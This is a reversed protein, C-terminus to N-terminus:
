EHQKHQRQTRLFLRVTHVLETEHRPIIHKKYRVPIVTGLQFAKRSKYPLVMLRYRAASHRNVHVAIAVALGTFRLIQSGSPQTGVPHLGFKDHVFVQIFVTKNGTIM